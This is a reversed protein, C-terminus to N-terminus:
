RPTSWRGASSAASSRPSRRRASRRRSGYAPHQGRARLVGGRGLAAGSYAGHRGPLGLGDPGPPRAAGRLRQGAAPSRRGAGRQAPVARGLRHPTFAKAAAHFTLVPDHVPADPPLLHGLAGLPLAADATTAVVRETRYGRREAHRLCEEALRSKGVGAPGHVLLASVAGGGLYTEFAALEESRGAFPWRHRRGAGASSAREHGHAGHGNAEHFDAEHDDAEHGDPASSSPASTM